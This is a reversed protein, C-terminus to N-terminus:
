TKMTEDHVGEFPISDNDNTDTTEDDETTQKKEDPPSHRTWRREVQIM